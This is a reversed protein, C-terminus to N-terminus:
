WVKTPIYIVRSLNASVKFSQAILPVVSLWCLLLLTVHIVSHLKSTEQFLGLATSETSFGWLPDQLRYTCRDSWYRRRWCLNTVSKATYIFISVHVPLQAFNDKIGSCFLYIIAALPNKIPRLGSLWTMIKMYMTAM